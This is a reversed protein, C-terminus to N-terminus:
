SARVFTYSLIRTRHTLPNNRVPSHPTSQLPTSHFLFLSTPRSTSPFSTSIQCPSPSSPVLQGHIPTTAPSTLCPILSVHVSWSQCGPSSSVALPSSVQIRRSTNHQWSTRRSRGYEIDARLKTSPRSAPITPRSFHFTRSRHLSIEALEISSFRTFVIARRACLRFITYLSIISLDLSSHSGPTSNRM